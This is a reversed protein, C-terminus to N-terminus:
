FPIPEEVKPAPAIVPPVVSAVGEPMSPPTGGELMLLQLAAEPSKGEFHKGRAVDWIKWNLSEIGCNHDWYEVMVAFGGKPLLQRVAEILQAYTM